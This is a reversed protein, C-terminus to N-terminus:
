AETCDCRREKSSDALVTPGGFLSAFVEDDDDDNNDQKEAIFWSEAM